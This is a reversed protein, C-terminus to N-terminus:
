KMQQLFENNLITGPSLSTNLFDNPDTSILQILQVEGQENQKVYLSKGQYSVLKHEEVESPFIEEYTLPTYLVM